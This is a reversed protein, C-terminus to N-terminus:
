EKLSDNVSKIEDFVNSNVDKKCLKYDELPCDPHIKDINFKPDAPIPCGEIKLYLEIYICERCFEIKLARAM